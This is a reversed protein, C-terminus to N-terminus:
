KRKKRRRKIKRVAGEEGGEVAGGEGEGEGGAVVEGRAKALTHAMHKWADGARHIDDRYHKMMGKTSASLDHVAGVIDKVYSHLNQKLARSMDSHDKHFEGLTKKVMNTLEKAEKQLRSRLERATIVRDKSIIELEHRFGKLKKGVESAVEAAFRALEAAQEASIKKRNEAMEKMQKNVNAMSENVQDILDGLAKVRVNHSAIINETINKMSEALKM